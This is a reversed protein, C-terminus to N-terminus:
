KFLGLSIRGIPVTYLSYIRPILVALSKVGWKHLRIVIKSRTFGVMLMKHRKSAQYLDVVKSPDKDSAAARSEKLAELKMQHAKRYYDATTKGAKAAAEM